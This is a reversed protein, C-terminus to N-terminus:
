KNALCEESLFSAVADAETERLHGHNTLFSRLEEGTESVVVTTGRGILSKRAFASVDGGHCSACRDSYIVPAAPEAALTPMAGSVGCLLALLVPSKRPQRHLM